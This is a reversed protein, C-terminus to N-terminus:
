LRSHNYYKAYFDTTWRGLKTARWRTVEEQFEPPATEYTLPFDGAGFFGAAFNPPSVLLAFLSATAIANATPRGDARETFGPKAIFGELEQAATSLEEECKAIYEDSKVFLKYMKKSVTGRFGDLGFLKRQAFPMNEASALPALPKGENPLYYSYVIARVHPGVVENLIQKLREDVPEWKELCEWSDNALISGDSGVLLPVGNSGDGRLRGMPGLMMHLGPYYGSETFGIKAEALAWRGAECFHSFPITYLVPQSSGGGM